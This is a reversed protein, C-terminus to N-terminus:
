FQREYKELEQPLSTDLWYSNTPPKKLQLRDRGLLNGLLRMPTFVIFYILAIILRSMLNGMVFAVSLWAWYFPLALRTGTLGILGVVAGIAMLWIGLTPDPTILRQFPWFYKVAGLLLFGGMFIAGFQRLEKKNPQWNLKVLGM